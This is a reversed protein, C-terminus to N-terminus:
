GGVTEVVSVEFKDWYVQVGPVEYDRPTYVGFTPTGGSADESAVAAGGVAKFPTGLKVNTEDCVTNGDVIVRCASDEGRHDKKWWVTATHSGTPSITVDDFVLEYSWDTANPDAEGRLHAEIKLSDHNARDVVLAFPPTKPFGGSSPRQGWVQFVIAWDVSDLWGVTDLFEFQLDFRYITKPRLWRDEELIHPVRLTVM